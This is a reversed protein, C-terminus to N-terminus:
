FSFHSVGINETNSGTFSTDASACLVGQANMEIIEVRPSEYGNTKCSKEKM